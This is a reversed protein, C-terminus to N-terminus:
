PPHSHFHGPQFAEAHEGAGARGHVNAPQLHILQHPGAGTALNLSACLPNVCSSTSWVSCTTEKHFFSQIMIDPAWFDLAMCYSGPITHPFKYLRKVPLKCSILCNFFLRLSLTSPKFNFTFKMKAKYSFTLQM